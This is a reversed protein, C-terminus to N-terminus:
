EIIEQYVAFNPKDDLNAESTKFFLQHVLFAKLSYAWVM